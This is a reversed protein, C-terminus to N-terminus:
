AVFTVGLPPLDWKIPFRSIRTASQTLQLNHETFYKVSTETEITAFQYLNDM